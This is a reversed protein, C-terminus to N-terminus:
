TSTGTLLALAQEPHRDLRQLAAKIKRIGHIRLVSLALNRLAAMIRPGDGTYARQADEHWTVDRVYHVAEVTWHERAATAIREPTGRQATLSTIAHLYEKSVRQGDLDFTDRRILAVQAAHPFDVDAADTIWLRRRTIRGHSREETDHDPAEFPLPRLLDRVRQLLAARNGKVFLLYDGDRGVIYDATATSTHAADATVITGTLEVPDLLAAVQTTETTDEPIQVQAVVVGQGHTVAAFLKTQTGRATKGDIALADLRGACDCREASLRDRIWRCVLADALEADVGQIMRRLTPPSPALYLCTRPDYRADLAALVEQPLDAAQDGIERFNTAGGLVTVVAIGLLCALRHRVGRKARPDPVTALLSLLDPAAAAAIPPCVHLVAAHSM